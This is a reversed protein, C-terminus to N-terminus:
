DEREPPLAYHVALWITPEDRSTWNVRHRTQAPLNIFDGARLVREEAEHELQVGAAGQVVLVWEGQPQCYWFGPPSAQGTSIIREICLDPRRLLAEFTEQEGREAAQPFADFLSTLM